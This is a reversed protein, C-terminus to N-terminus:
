NLAKLPERLLPAFLGFPFTLALVSGESPGKARVGAEAAKGDAATCGLQTRTAM